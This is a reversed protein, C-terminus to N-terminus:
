TINYIKAWFTSILTIINARLHINEVSYADKNSFLLHPYMINNINFFNNNIQYLDCLEYLESQLLTRENHLNKCHYFIHEITEPASLCFKCRDSNIM